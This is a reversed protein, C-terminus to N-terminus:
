VVGAKGPVYGCGGEERWEEEEERCGSLAKREGDGVPMVQGSRQGRVEQKRGVKTKEKLCEHM